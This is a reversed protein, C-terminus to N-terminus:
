RRRKLKEVELNLRESIMKLELLSVELSRYNMQHQKFHKKLKDVELAQMYLWIISFIIIFSLLLLTAIGVIQYIQEIM